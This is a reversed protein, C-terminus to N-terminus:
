CFVSFTPLESEVTKRQGVNMHSILIFFELSKQFIVSLELVSQKVFHTRPHGPSYLCVRIVFTQRTLQWEIKRRRVGSM